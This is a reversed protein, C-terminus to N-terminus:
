SYRRRIAPLVLERGLNCTMEFNTLKNSNDQSITKANSRCTDLIFALANLPWMRYKKQTSHTTSLLDVVYVGGKTHDYMTHVSPKKRQDKTIKVNDHMTSLVIVNKKCSKKKDFYSFLMIKEKTNYVHMVTREERDAVPKVEKSIGKQDQNMTGVITINKELAWTALYVSTFYSDM